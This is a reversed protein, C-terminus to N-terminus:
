QYGENIYRGPAIRLERLGVLGLVLFLLSGSRLATAPFGDIHGTAYFTSVAVIDVTDSVVGMALINRKMTPPKAALLAAGFVIDRVGGVRSISLAPPTPPVCLIRAIHTPVALFSVGVVCRLSSLIYIAATSM